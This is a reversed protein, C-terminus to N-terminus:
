KLSLIAAQNKESLENLKVKTAEADVRGIIGSAVYLNSVAQEVHSEILAVPLKNQEAQFLLVALADNPPFFTIGFIKVPNENGSIREIVEANVSGVVHTELFKDLFTNLRASFVMMKMTGLVASVHKFLEKHAEKRPLLKIEAPM